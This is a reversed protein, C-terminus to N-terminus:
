GLALVAAVAVNATAATVRVADVRTLRRHTPADWGESLRRHLPVALLATAALVIVLLVVSAM